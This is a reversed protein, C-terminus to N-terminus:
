RILAPCMVGAQHAKASKLAKRTIESIPEEDEGLLGMSTMCMLTRVTLDIMTDGQMMDQMVDRRTQSPLQRLENFLLTINQANVALKCLSHTAMVAAFALPATLCAVAGSLVKIAKTPGNRSVNHIVNDQVRQRLTREFLHGHMMNFLDTNSAHAVQAYSM